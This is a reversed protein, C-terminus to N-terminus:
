RDKNKSRVFTCCQLCLFVSVKEFRQVMKSQTSIFSRNLRNNQAPYFLRCRKDTKIIHNFIPQFKNTRLFIEIKASIEFLLPCVHCSYNRSCANQFGVVAGPIGSWEDVRRGFPYGGLDMGTKPRPLNGDFLLFYELGCFLGESPM